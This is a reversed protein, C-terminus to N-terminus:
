RESGKGFYQQWNQRVRELTEEPPHVLEATKRGEVAFKKTADVGMKSCWAFETLGTSEAEYRARASPNLPYVGMPPLMVVDRQPDVRTAEAFDVRLPDYIDIDEDVVTVQNVSATGYGTGFAAYIAQKAWGPYRKHIQVIAKYGRGELPILCDRFGIVREKLENYFNSQLPITRIIENEGYQHGVSCSQYIADRRHTICAVHFTPTIMQEEYYEMWEGFPGERTPEDHRLEGEIVIEATAPVDVDITECRVLEVPEGRLAGAFAFEDDGVHGMKTTGALYITPDLGCVIAVPLGGQGRKKALALHIGIDQMMLAMIGTTKRDFVNVRYIGVNRGFGPDKTTTANLTIYAGGDGPHWQFIPFKFLDVDDGKLIVEKCPGSEVMAPQPWERKNMLVAAYHDRLARVSSHKPLGLALAIRAYTGHVNAVLSHASGRVKEFLLAPGRRTNTEWVIAAVEDGPTVERRIRAMEDEAELLQLFERLDCFAM